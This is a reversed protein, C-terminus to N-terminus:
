ASLNVVWNTATNKFFMASKNQAVSFSADTSGGQINGGSPPFVLAADSTTNFVIYPGGGIGNSPLRFATQGSATTLVSLNSTIPTGTAQATGVGTKATVTLGLVTAQAAPVGVGILDKASPM